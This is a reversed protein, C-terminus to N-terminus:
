FTRSNNDNVIDSAIQERTEQCGTSYGARQGNDYSRNLEVTNDKPVNVGVTVGLLLGGLTGLIAKKNEVIKQKLNIM